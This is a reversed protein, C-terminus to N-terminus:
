ALAGEFLHLLRAWAKAAQKEHYGHFDPTCWGHLTGEYVEIEAPVGAAKYAARIINKTEPSRRDDNEAVAHLAHASLKQYLFIRATLDIQLWAEVGM